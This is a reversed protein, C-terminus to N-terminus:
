EMGTAPFGKEQWRRYKWLFIARRLEHVDRATSNSLLLLTVDSTREVDAITDYGHRQLVHRLRPSLSLQDLGPSLRHRCERAAWEIVSWVLVPVAFILGALAMWGVSLMVAQVAAPSILMPGGVVLACGVVTAASRRIPHVQFPDFVPDGGLHYRYRTHVEHFTGIRHRFGAV